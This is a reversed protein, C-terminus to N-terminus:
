KITELIKNLAWYRPNFFGNFMNSFSFFTSIFLIMWVIFAVVMVIAIGDNSDYHSYNGGIEKSLHKHLKLLFIGMIAVSIIYGLSMLADIQAQKLLIAWLEYSAVGLKDALKNLLESLEKNM